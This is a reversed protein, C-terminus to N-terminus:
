NRRSLPAWVNLCAAARVALLRLTDSNLRSAAGCLPRELAFFLPWRCHIFVRDIKQEASYFLQARATIHVSQVHQMQKGFPRKSDNDVRAAAGPTLCDGQCLLEAGDNLRNIRMPREQVVERSPRLFRPYLLEHLRM